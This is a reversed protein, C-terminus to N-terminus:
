LAPALTTQSLAKRAGTDKLHVSSLVVEDVTTTEIAKDDNNPKKEVEVVKKIRSKVILASEITRILQLIEKESFTIKEEGTVHKIIPERVLLFSAGKEVARGPTITKSQGVVVGEPAVNVAVRQIKAKDYRENDYSPLESPISFVGDFGEFLQRNFFLMRQGTNGYVATSMTVDMHPPTTVAFIRPTLPSSRGNGLGKFFAKIAIPGSACNVTVMHIDSLYLNRGWAYMEEPSGNLNTSLSFRVGNEKALSTLSWLPHNLLLSSNIFIHTIKGSVKEVVQKILGLNPVFTLDLLIMDKAKQTLDNEMNKEGFTKTYPVLTESYNLM